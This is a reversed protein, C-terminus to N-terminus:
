LQGQLPMVIVRADLCHFGRQEAIDLVSEGAHVLLWQEDNRGHHVRAVLQLKEAFYQLLTCRLQEDGFYTANCHWCGVAIILQRGHHFPGVHFSGTLQRAHRVFNHWTPHLCSTGSSQVQCLWIYRQRLWQCRPPSVICTEAWLHSTDCSVKETRCGGRHRSLAVLSTYASWHFWRSGSHTSINSNM